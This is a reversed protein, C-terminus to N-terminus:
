KIKLKLCEIYKQTQKKLNLFEKLKNWYIYIEKLLFYSFSVFRNNKIDGKYKILDPLKDFLESFKDMKNENYIKKESHQLIFIDYLFDKCSQFGNKNLKNYLFNIDIKDINNEIFNDELLIYLIEVYKNYYKKEKEEINNNNILYNKFNNEDEKKIINLSIVATKSPIFHTEIIKNYVVIKEELEKIKDKIFLENNKLIEKVSILDRIKKTARSFIIRERLHLIKSNSLSLFAKEKNSLSKIKIENNINNINKIIKSINKNIENKNNINNNNLININVKDKNLNKNINQLDDTSKNIYEKTSNNDNANINSKNTLFRKLEINNNNENNKDQRTRNKHKMEVSSVKKKNNINNANNVINLNKYNNNTKTYNTIKSIVIEKPEIVENKNKFNLKKEKIVNNNILGINNNILGFNKNQEFFVLKSQKKPLSVLSKNKPNFKKYNIDNYNNYNMEVNLNNKKILIGKNNINLRSTYDDINKLKM